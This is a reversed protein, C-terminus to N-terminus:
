NIIKSKLLFDNINNKDKEEINECGYDWHVTIWSGKETNELIETNITREEGNVLEVTKRKGHKKKIKGPLVLCKDIEKNPNNEKLMEAHKFWFYERIIEKNIKNENKEKSLIKLMNIAMPFSKQIDLDIDLDKKIYRIIKSKDRDESCPLAYKLFVKKTEENKFDIKEDM